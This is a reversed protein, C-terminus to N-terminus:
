HTKDQAEEEPELSQIACAVLGGGQQQMKVLTGIDENSFMESYLTVTVKGQESTVKKITLKFDDISLSEWEKPESQNGLHIQEETSKM